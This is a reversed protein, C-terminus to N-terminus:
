PFFFHDNSQKPNTKFSIWGFRKFFLDVVRWFLHFVKAITIIKKLKLFKNLLVEFFVVWHNKTRCFISITQLCKNCDLCLIYQFTFWLNTFYSFIPVLIAWFHNEVLFPTLFACLLYTNTDQPQMSWMRMEHGSINEQYAGGMSSFLQWTWFFNRSTENHWKFLKQYM